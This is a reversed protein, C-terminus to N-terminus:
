IIKGKGNIMKKKRSLLVQHAKAKLCSSKAANIILKDGYEHGYHDNIYKLNNVDFNYIAISYPSGFRINQNYM